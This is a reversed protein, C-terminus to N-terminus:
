DEAEVAVGREDLGERDTKRFGPPHAKFEADRGYYTQRQHRDLSEVPLRASKVIRKSVAQVPRSNDGPRRM